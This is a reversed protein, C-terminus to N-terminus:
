EEVIAYDKIIRGIANEDNSYELVLKAEKKLAEDANKVAVGLGARAIMPLDNLSDGAAITEEVSVGYYQAIKELATAKSYFRNSVEVLCAASYTVYYEEGFRANLLNYIREKDEPALLVLVKRVKLTNTKLFKSLPMDKVVIGNVGSVRQYYALWEDDMNSYYDYTDYVHIHVGLDELFRCMEIAGDTPLCGDVLFEGSEIDAVISGQFSSLLGSLGLKKAVKMASSITRGTCLAFHGGLAKYENIALITEESITEDSRLLTGDFDSVLLPYRIKQM